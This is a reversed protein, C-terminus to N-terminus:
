HALYCVHDGISLQPGPDNPHEVRFRLLPGNRNSELVGVYSALPGGNFLVHNGDVRYTGPAAANATSSYSSNFDLTITGLSSQAYMGAGSVWCVYRGAVTPPLGSSPPSSPPPQPPPPAPLPAPAPPPAAPPAGPPPSQMVTVGGQAQSSPDFPPPQPGTAGAPAPAANLNTQYTPYNSYGTPSNPDAYPGHPQQSPPPGYGTQSGQQQAYPRYPPDTLCGSVLALVILYRV